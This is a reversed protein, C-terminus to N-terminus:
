VPPAGLASQCPKGILTHSDNTGAGCGNLTHWMQLHWPVTHREVFGLSQQHERWGVLLGLM